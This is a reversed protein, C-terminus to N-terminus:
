QIYMWNGKLLISFFYWANDFDQPVGVDVAYAVLGAIVADM